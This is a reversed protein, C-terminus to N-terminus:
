RVNSISNKVTDHKTKMINSVATYSRSEHQMQSQLQLFQLDFSMSVEQIFAGPDERAALTPEIEDLVDTWDEASTRLKEACLAVFAVFRPWAELDEAPLGKPTPEKALAELDAAVSEVRAIQKRLRALQQKPSPKSSEKPTRDPAGASALGPSGITVASALALAVLRTRDM